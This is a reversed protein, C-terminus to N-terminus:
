KSNHNKWCSIYIIEYKLILQKNNSFKKWYYDEVKKFYNKNEFIKKRDYYLNTNSLYRIDKLLNSFNNYRMEITDIDIVPIKFNNKQILNILNEVTNFNLFRQFAGKYLDLDVKIMSEKLEILNNKGPMTTILFGNNCLSDNIKKFLTNLNNSVHLYCNSVMLNFINKSFPWHDVDFCIKLNTLKSKTIINYSIDSSFFNSMPFKSTIFKNLSNNQLGIELCNNITINLNSISQNIRNAIENFIFQNGKSATKNRQLIYYDKNILQDYKM